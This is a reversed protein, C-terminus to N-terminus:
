DVEFVARVPAHDSIIGGESNLPYDVSREKVDMGRHVIWDIKLGCKARDGDPKCHGTGSFDGRFTNEIHYFPFMWFMLWGPLENFDGGIVVPLDYGKADKLIERMQIWKGITDANSELHVTYARVQKGGTLEITAGITVRDGYRPEGQLQGFRSWDFMTKHRIVTVDSLPWPSLIANGHDGQNEPTQDNYEVFETVYVMNMDLERALLDAVFIDGTRSHLRDLETLLVLTAPYEERRDKIYSAVDEWFFGREINFAIVQLDGDFPTEGETYTAYEPLNIDRAPAEVKKNACSFLTAAGILAIAIILGTGSKTSSPSGEKVTRLGAGAKYKRQM